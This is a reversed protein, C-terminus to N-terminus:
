KRIVHCDTKRLTPEDIVLTENPRCDELTASRFEYPPTYTFHWSHANEVSSATQSMVIRGGPRAVCRKGTGPVGDSILFEKQQELAVTDGTELNIPRASCSATAAAVLASLAFPRMHM